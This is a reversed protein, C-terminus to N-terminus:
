SPNPLVATAARTRAAEANQVRSFVRWMGQDPVRLRAAVQRASGAIGRKQIAPCTSLPCSLVFRTSITYTSAIYYTLYWGAKVSSRPTWRSRLTLGACKVNRGRRVLRRTPPRKPAKPGGIVAGMTPGLHRFPSPFRVLHDPAFSLQHAPTRGRAPPPLRLPMQRMRPVPPSFGPRAFAVYGARLAAFRYVCNTPASPRARDLPM